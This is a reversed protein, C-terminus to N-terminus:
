GLPRVHIFLFKTSRAAVQPCAHAANADRHHSRQAISRQPPQALVQAHMRAVVNAYQKQVVGEERYASDEDRTLAQRACRAQPQSRVTAVTAARRARANTFASCSTSSSSVLSMAYSTAHPMSKSPVRSCSTHAALSWATRPQQAPQVRHWTRWVSVGPTRPAPCRTRDTRDTRPPALRVLRAARPGAMEHKSTSSRPQQAGQYRAPPPANGAAAAVGEGVRRNVPGVVCRKDESACCPMLNLVQRSPSGTDGCGAAAPTPRVNLLAQGADSLM